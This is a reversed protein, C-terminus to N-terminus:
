LNELINQLSYPFLVNELPTIEAMNKEGHSRGLLNLLKIVFLLSMLTSLIEESM